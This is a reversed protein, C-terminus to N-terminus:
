SCVIAICCDLAVLGETIKSFQQCFPIDRNQAVVLPGKNIRFLELLTLGDRNVIFDDIVSQFGDM